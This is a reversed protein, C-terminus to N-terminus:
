CVSVHGTELVQGWDGSLGMPLPVARFTTFLPLIRARSQLFCSANSIPYFYLSTLPWGPKRSSRSVSRPRREHSPSNRASATQAAATAPPSWPFNLKLFKLDFLSMLVLCQNHLHVRVYPQACFQRHAEFVPPMAILPM